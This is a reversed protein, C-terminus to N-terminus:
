ILDDNRSRRGLWESLQPLISLPQVFLSSRFIYFPTQWGATFRECRFFFCMLPKLAMQSSGWLLVTVDATLQRNAQKAVCLSMFSLLHHKKEKPTQRHSFWLHDYNGSFHDKCPLVRNSHDRHVKSPTTRDHSLGTFAAVLLSM